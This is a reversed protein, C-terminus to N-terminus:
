QNDGKGTNGESYGRKYGDSYNEAYTQRERQTPFNSSTDHENMPKGAVGDYYGDWYGDEAGAEDAPRPDRELTDTVVVHTSDAIDQRVDPAVTTDPKAMPGSTTTDTAAGAVQEPKDSATKFYFIVACTAVFLLLFLLANKRNIGQRKM